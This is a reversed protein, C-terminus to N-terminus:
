EWIDEKNRLQKLLKIVQLTEEVSLRDARLKNCEGCCPLVNELTYGKDNDIRDLDTGTESLGNGCNYYCQNNKIILKYEDLTLSFELKKYKARTKAQKLKTKVERSRKYEYKKIDDKHKTYYQRCQERMKEKNKLRYEKNYQKIQEKNM